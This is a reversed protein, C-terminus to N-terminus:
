SDPRDVSDTQPFTQGSPRFHLPKRFKKQTQAPNAPRNCSAFLDPALDGNKVKQIRRRRRLITNIEALAASTAMSPESAQLQRLAPPLLDAAPRPAKAAAYYEDGHHKM